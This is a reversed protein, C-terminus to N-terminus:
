YLKDGPIEQKVVSKGGELKNINLQLRAQGDERFSLKGQAGDFTVKKMAAVIKDTDDVTGALKLAEMLLFMVDYAEMDYTMSPRGMVKEFEAKYATTKDNVSNSASSYAYLEGGADGVAKMFDISNWNTWGMIPAKIGLERAQKVLPIGENALLNAQIADPNLGKIKTLIANYDNNGLPVFDESLLKIGLRAMEEKAAGAGAKGADDNRAISSMSKVGLVSQMFGISAKQAPEITHTDRFTYKISPTILANASAIPLILIVKAPETVKQQALAVTSAPSGFIVKVQDQTVLRQAMTVGTEAQSADDYQILEITYQQGAVNVGGAENIKKVAFQTGMLQELGMSSNAGSTPATSGIKLVKAAAKAATPAAPAAKPPEAAPSCAAALALLAIGVVTVLLKIRNKGM